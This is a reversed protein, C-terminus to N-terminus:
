DWGPNNPRLNSNREMQKYPVSLLDNKPSSYRRNSELILYGESNYNFENIIKQGEEKTKGLKLPDLWKKNVGLLDNGLLYGQGWRRIDCWRHGEFFLEVQRERHVETRLDMGKQALEDLNMRHMGVRDRLRNITLDITTQDLQGLEMKAEAYNLLIEAYRFIIVDNDDQSVTSVKSPEVMKRMYYGSYTMAGRKDNILKPYTFLKNDSNNPNGDKGGEWTTNPPLISQNMRPDRNEFVEEYSSASAPNWITGDATLYAKVQTHTPLFRAYDNPVWNSRSINHSSSAVEGLDFNYVYALIVERNAAKRSARGNFNFIDMYDNEPKGTSYLEYGLNMAKECASIAKNWEKNYLYIRSLLALAAGQSIRGFEQSAPQIFEPLHQYSNELDETIFKVIESVEDRGRYLDESSVNLTKTILPVNGFFTTLEFYQFARHFRAEAAYRERKEESVSTALHYNELFYNCRRILRYKSVWFSNLQSQDSAYNGGGINRWATTVAWPSCDGMIEYINLRYAGTLGTYLANAASVVHAESQWFNADTMEDLPPRDLFDDNCSINFCSIFILAVVIKLYKQTNM